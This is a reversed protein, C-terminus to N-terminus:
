DPAHGDGLPDGDPRGQAPWGRGRRWRCGVLGVFGPRVATRVAAPRQHRAPVLQVSGQDVTGSPRDLALAVAVVLVVPILMAAPFPRRFFSRPM